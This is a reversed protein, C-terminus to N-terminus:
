IIVLADKHQFPGWMTQQEHIYSKYLVMVQVEEDVCSVFHYWHM